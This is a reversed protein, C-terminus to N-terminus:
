YGENQVLNPNAGLDSSPIPFVNRFGDVAQGEPVGGKWAWRYTGDSFQGFRVLDTRRHCEWYFERAREDLIFDLTLDSAPINGGPSKFARTRVENVYNLAKTQDGGSRLLAEAGMLYADALRFMPFDTDAHDQDVGPVGDSTVNKFKNVAYGETFTGIDAIDLTQGESFFFPRNDFSALRIQYTYDPRDLFLLIEYDGAPININDGGYNLVRDGGTDGLNVDWADNARFKIAGGSSLVVTRLAQQEEDWVFDQDEDWGGVADGLVGWSTKTLEYTNDNLDVKIFYLGAEPVPIPAGFQDLVGDGDNDGFDPASESPIQTVKFEGAEPFYKYGEFIKDSNVSSLANDTDSYDFGQYSAPTYVKPYLVTNGDTPEAVLGGLEGFKEVLQRTTRSGGWGSAVGSETADMEGGIGARIIFTMGGWTQISAGDFAIPFIVEDSNHNDALFLHGYEPELTYGANIIKDCNAVCDNWRATGTYVEANLYLKALLAWVAGQDARAYENSRVPVITGEIALLEGEIYNFLDTAQIQEPFFQGVIDEETVFPVNRFLDLAHWYSLARLFRAEARFGEIETQLTAAVGRENLKEATTERLFENCLAVQFYIRSYMAFIFGDTASWDQDHFDAITQDNWGIVAEETTLEQHYWYMRLYQGFGEDIDDIDSNGAPGEQGTVALGAYLKALFKKYSDADEFILTSTSVNQDIPVTDLDKFCASVSILLIILISNLLINKSNM